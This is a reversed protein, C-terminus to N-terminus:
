DVTLAVLEGGQKQVQEKLLFTLALSDAGGSVAVAIKLNQPSASHCFGAKYLLSEFEQATVAKVSM